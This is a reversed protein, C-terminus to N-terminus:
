VVPQTVALWVPQRGDEPRAVRQDMGAFFNIVNRHEVMVGKPRGTSGSTYILYALNSASCRGGPELGRGAAESLSEITVVDVSQTTPLPPAGGPDCILIKLESDEIMFELRDAPYEPDLPVYAGGAKMVGLAAIVLDATRTMYLGVLADPGVGRAVLANAVKNARANLEAYTLEQDRYVLATHNPTSEVQREFLTHVTAEFDVPAETANRQYLAVDLEADTLLSLDAIRKDPEDRVVAAIAAVRRKLAEAEHLAFRSADFLLRCKTVGGSEEIAFTVVTGPLGQDEAMGTRVRVGISFQPIEISPYRAVLDAAYGPSADLWELEQAVAQKHSALAATEDFALQFPVSTAVYGALTTKLEHLRPSCYALQLSAQDSTRGIYATLSTLLDAADLGSLDLALVRWDSSLDDKPATVGALEADAYRELRTIFKPESGALESALENLREALDANLDDLRDGVSVLTAPNVDVGDADALMALRVFGDRTAVVCGQEDVDIVEGPAANRTATLADVQGVSYAKGDIRVKPVAIPNVYGRGFDLARAIRECDEATGDFNLTAAADPRKSKAFYTRDDFSQPVGQLKDSEILDCLDAFSAMGAEFCKANLTLSTEGKSIEIERQLYIDGRDVGEVIEHWTIGHNEENNLLAWTPTNLGAYRPLPGDHFNISGRKAQKLISSPILRLNSISFFWDFEEGSWGAVLLEEPALTKLGHQGAWGGINPNATVVAAVHHGRGILEEGCQALLTEDGMVVCSFVTREAMVVIRTDANGRCLKHFM